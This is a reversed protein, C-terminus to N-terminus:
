ISQVFSVLWLACKQFKGTHPDLNVLNKDSEFCCILKGEVKANSKLTM